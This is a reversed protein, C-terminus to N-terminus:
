DTAMEKILLVAEKETIKEYNTFDSFFIRDYWADQEVWGLNSDFVATSGNVYRVIKTQETRIIFYQTEM